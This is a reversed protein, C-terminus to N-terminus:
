RKGEKDWGCQHGSGKLTKLRALQESTLISQFKQRKEQRIKRLEDQLGKIEKSKADIAAKDKGDIRLQRLEFKADLLKIKIPRTAQYTSLNIEKLQQVQRDSLNLKEAIPVKNQSSARDPCACGNGAGAAAAVNTFAVALTLTLALVMLKKRM